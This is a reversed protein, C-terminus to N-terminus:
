PRKLALLTNWRTFVILTFEFALWGRTADKNRCPECAIQLAKAIAFLELPDTTWSRKVSWSRENWVGMSLCYAIGTGCSPNDHFRSGDTRYAERCQQAGLDSEKIAEALAIDGPNIVVNHEFATNNRIDQRM